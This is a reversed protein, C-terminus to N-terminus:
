PHDLKYKKHIRMLENYKRKWLDREKKLFSIEEKLITEKQTFLRDLSNFKEEYRIPLDDLAEKYLKVVASGNGIEKTDVEVNYKRRTFFWGFFGGVFATFVLLLYPRLLEFM